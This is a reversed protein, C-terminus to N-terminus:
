QTGPSRKLLARAKAQFAAIFEIYQVYTEYERREQESLKVENCKRALQDLRAQTRGDVRYDVLKRAVEPTLMHGLPELLRDVIPAKPPKM